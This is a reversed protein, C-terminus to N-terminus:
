RGREPSAHKSSTSCVRTSTSRPPGNPPTPWLGSCRAWGSACSGGRPTTSPGISESGRDGPDTGTFDLILKDDTKTMTLRLAHPGLAFGDSEVYDEFTYVGDAIKPLLEERITRACNEIIADYAAELTDIGYRDAM